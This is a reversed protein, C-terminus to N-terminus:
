STNPGKIDLLFRHYSFLVRYAGALILAQHTGNGNLELGITTVGARRGDRMDGIMDGLFYIEEPACKAIRAAELLSEVKDEKQTWIERFCSVLDAKELPPIVWDPGNASLIFQPVGAISLKEAVESFAPLVTLGNVGRAELYVGFIEEETMDVGLGRLYPIFPPEYSRYFEKFGPMAVGAQRCVCEIASHLKPMTDSVVGDFDYVVAKCQNM